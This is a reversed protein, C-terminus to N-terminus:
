NLFLLFLRKYISRLSHYISIACFSIMVRIRKLLPRFNVFSVCSVLIVSALPGKM